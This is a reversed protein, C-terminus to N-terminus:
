RRRFGVTSSELIPPEKWNALNTSPLGTETVIVDKPRFFNGVTPWLWDHTIVSASDKQFSHLDKNRAVVDKATITHSMKSVDITDILKRLV